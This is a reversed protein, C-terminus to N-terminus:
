SHLSGFIKGLIFAFTNRRLKAQTKNTCNVPSSLLFQDAICLLRARKHVNSELGCKVTIETMTLYHTMSVLIVKDFTFKLWIVYALALYSQQGTDVTMQTMILYHTISVLVDKDFTSKLLIASALHWTWTYNTSSQFGVQLPVVTTVM